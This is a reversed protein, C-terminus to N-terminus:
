WRLFPFHCSLLIMTPLLDATLCIFLSRQSMLKLFLATGQHAYAFMEMFMKLSYLTANSSARGVKLGLATKEKRLLCFMSNPKVGLHEM